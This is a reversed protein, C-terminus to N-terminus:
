YYHPKTAYHHPAPSWCHGLYFNIQIARHYITLPSKRGTIVTFKNVTEITM